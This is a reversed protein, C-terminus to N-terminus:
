FAKLLSLFGKPFGESLIPVGLFAKVLALLADM